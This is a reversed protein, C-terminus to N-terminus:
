KPRGPHMEMGTWVWQESASTAGEAEAKATRVSAGSVRLSELVEEDGIAEEEKVM